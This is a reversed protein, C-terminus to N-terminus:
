VHARGIQGHRGAACPTSGRGRELVQRVPEDLQVPLVLVLLQEIRGLMERQEIRPGTEILRPCLDGRRERGHASQAFLEIPQM